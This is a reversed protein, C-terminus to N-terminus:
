LHYWNIEREEVKQIFEIQISLLIVYLIAISFFIIYIFFLLQITLSSLICDLLNIKHIYDKIIM